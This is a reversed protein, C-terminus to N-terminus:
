QGSARKDYECVMTPSEVVQCVQYAEPKLFSGQGTRIFFPAFCEESRRYADWKQSCTSQQVPKVPKPVDVVGLQEETDIQKREVRLKEKAARVEADNREADSLEYRRSNVRKAAAKYKEPIVDSMHIKGDDDVWKYIEIASSPAAFTILMGPILFLHMFGILYKRWPSAMSDCYM